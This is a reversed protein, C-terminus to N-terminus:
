TLNPFHHSTKARHRRLHLVALYLSV